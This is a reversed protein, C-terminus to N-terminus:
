VSDRKRMEAIRVWVTAIGIWLAVNVHTLTVGGAIAALANLVFSIGALVYMIRM